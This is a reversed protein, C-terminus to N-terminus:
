AETSYLSVKLGPFMRDILRAVKERKMDHREGSLKIYGTRFFPLNNSHSEMFVASTEHFVRNQLAQFVEDQQKQASGIFAIDLCSEYGQSPKGIEPRFSLRTHVGGILWIAALSTIALTWTKAKERM